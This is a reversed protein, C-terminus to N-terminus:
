PVESARNSRPPSALVPPHGGDALEAQPRPGRRPASFGLRPPSRPWSWRRPASGGAGRSPPRTAALRRSSPTRRAGGAWARRRSTPDRGAPRHPGGRARGSRRLCTRSRSSSGGGGGSARLGYRFRQHRGALCPAVAQLRRGGLRHEGREPRIRPLQDSAPERRLLGLGGFPLACLKVANRSTLPASASVFEWCPRKQRQAKRSCSITSGTQASERHLLSAQARAALAAM